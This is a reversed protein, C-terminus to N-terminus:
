IHILSLYVPRQLANNDTTDSMDGFQWDWWINGSVTTATFQVTLPVMGSTPNATFSAVAPTMADTIQPIGIVLLLLVLVIKKM